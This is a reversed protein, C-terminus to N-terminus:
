VLGFWNHVGVMEAANDSIKRGCQRREGFGKNVFLQKRNIQTKDLRTIKFVYDAKFGSDTLFQIRLVDNDEIHNEEVPFWGMTKMLVEEGLEHLNEYNGAFACPDRDESNKLQEYQM